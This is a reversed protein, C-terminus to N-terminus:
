RGRLRRFAGTATTPATVLHRLEAIVPSLPRDERGRVTTWGHRRLLEDRERDRLRAATTDHYPSDVELIVRAEPWHLDVEYTREGAAVLRNVLPRPLGADVCRCYFRAETESRVRILEPDFAGIARRLRGAGRRGRHRGLLVGIARLDFLELRESTEIAADLGRGRLISALDLITRAVTTCPVGREITLEDSRVREGRHVRLGDKKRGCRAPSTVDITAAASARIGWLAAASAHSLAAGPGCALTAALYHGEARLAAHGVAYVGRHLRILRGSGVWGRVTSEPIALDCLQSLEVVGHQHEALV